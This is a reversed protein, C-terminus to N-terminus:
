SKNNLVQKQARAIAEVFRHWLQGAYAVMRDIDANDPLRITVDNDHSGSDHAGSSEPATTGPLALGHALMEKKLGANETRLRAIENELVARDDPAAQCAWGVTRQSCVSVQGTQTDLRLFGEAVKSFSYRGHESDPTEQEALATATLAICVAAAFLTKNITNTQIMTREMGHPFRGYLPVVRTTASKAAAEAPHLAQM